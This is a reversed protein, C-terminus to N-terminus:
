QQISPIDGAAYSTPRLNGQDDLATAAECLKKPTPGMQVPLAPGGVWPLGPDYTASDNTGSTKCVTTDSLVIPKTDAAAPLTGSAQLAADNPDAVIIMGYMGRFVENTSTTDHPHYWFIGPRTVKFEYLFSGGTPVINQT